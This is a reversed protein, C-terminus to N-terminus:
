RRNGNWNRARSPIAGEPRQSPSDPRHRHIRPGHGQPDRDRSWDEQSIGELHHCRLCAGVVRGLHLPAFDPRREEGTRLTRELQFCADRLLRALDSAARGEAGYAGEIKGALDQLEAAAEAAKEYHGMALTRSADQLVQSARTMLQVLPMKVPTRIAPTSGPRRGDGPLSPDPQSPKVEFSYGNRKYERGRPTLLFTRTDVHCVSCSMGEQLSYDEYSWSPSALAALWLLM